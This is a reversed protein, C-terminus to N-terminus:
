GRGRARGAQIRERHEVLAQPRMDAHRLIADAIARVPLRGTGTHAFQQQRVRLHRYLEGRELLAAPLAPDVSAAEHSFVGLGEVIWLRPPLLRSLFRVKGANQKMPSTRVLRQGDLTALLLTDDSEGRTVAGAWHKTEIVFIGFPTIVLHDIEATPFASGPAHILIVGDLLCWDDGCLRALHRHLDASVRKEGEDGRGLPLGPGAVAAGDDLSRKGNFSLYACLLVAGFALLQILM